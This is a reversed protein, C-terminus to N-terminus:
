KDFSLLIKSKLNASFFLFFLFSFFAFARTLM